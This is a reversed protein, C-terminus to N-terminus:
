YHLAILRLEWVPQHAAEGQVFWRRRRREEKEKWEEEM